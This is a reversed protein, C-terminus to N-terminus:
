VTVHMEPSHIANSAEVIEKMGPRDMHPVLKMLIPREGTVSVIARWEPLAHIDAPELIPVKHYSSNVSRSHNGASMLGGGDSSGTSWQLEDRNGVITSLNRLVSEEEIGRGYIRHTSAGMLKDMGTKGWAAEGQARSQLITVPCIGRSGYHSYREPLAKDRVANAAEDLLVVAAVPLRGGPCSNAYEEAADLVAITLASVVPGLSGVGEKSLSILTDANSRVFEHPDFEERDDDPGQKCVWALADRNFLFSLIKGANAFIGRKTEEPLKYIGKLDLGLLDWGNDALILAPTDMGPASVWHFLQTLPYRTAPHGPTVGRPVAGSAALLLGALLGRGRPDFFGDTKAEPDKAADAFLNAQIIAHTDDIVYALPDWYWTAEIGSIGQPDFCRMKGAKARPEWIADPFDRKNSTGYVWGPAELAAPICIASTKGSGPGMVCTLTSRWGAYMDQKARIGNGLHVGVKAHTSYHASANKATVAKLTMSEGRGMFKAVSDVHERKRNRKASMNLVLYLLGFMLIVVVVALGTHWMTWERGSKFWTVVAKAPNAELWTGDSSALRHGLQIIGVFSLLVVATIAILPATGSTPRRTAPSNNM